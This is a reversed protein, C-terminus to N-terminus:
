FSTLSADGASFKELEGNNKLILLFGQEDIGQALGSIIESDQTILHHKKISIKKNKLYDLDDFIKLFYSLGKQEFIKLDEQIKKIVGIVLPNRDLFEAKNELNNALVSVERGSLDKSFDADLIQNINLGVGIVVKTKAVKAQARNGAKLEILIGGMKKGDLYLDNPWKIQIKNKLNKLDLGRIVSTAIVLGLGNLSSIEKEYPYLYSLLINQGFSSAWSRGLRGRGATQVETLCVRHQLNFEVNLLYTNTSDLSEFVELFIESGIGAQIKEPNLLIM